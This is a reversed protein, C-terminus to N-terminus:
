KDKTVAWFDEKPMFGNPKLMVIKSNLSNSQKNLPSITLNQM